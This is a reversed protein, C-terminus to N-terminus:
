RPTRAHPPDRVGASIDAFILWNKEIKTERVPCIQSHPFRALDRCIKQEGVVKDLRFKNLKDNIVDNNQTAKNNKRNKGEHQFILPFM